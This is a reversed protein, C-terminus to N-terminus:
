SGTLASPSLAAPMPDSCRRRQTPRRAIAGSRVKGGGLFCTAIADFDLSVCVFGNQGDGLGVGNATPGGAVLGPSQGKAKLGGGNVPLFSHGVQCAAPTKGGSKNPGRRGYGHPVAIPNGRLLDSSRPTMAPTM